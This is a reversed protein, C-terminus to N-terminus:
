VKPKAPPAAKPATPATPATKPAALAEAQPKSGNWAWAAIKWDGGAKTLAFTFGGHEVMPKKHERYLYDAHLQVYATDSEANTVSVPGLRIRGDTDGNAKADKVLDAAWSDVAGSGSWIHPAFDDIITPADAYTTKVGAMDGKNFDDIFQHIASLPGSAAKAAALSPGSMTLLALASAAAMAARSYTM